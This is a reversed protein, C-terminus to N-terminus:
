PPASARRREGWLSMLNAALIIGGGALVWPDVAEDYALVGVVAILPLRLFDIPAVFSADAHSVAKTLSVQAGIGGLAILTLWGWAAPSPQRFDALAPGAAMLGQLITMYFLVQLTTETRTLRKTALTSLGYGIGCLFAAVIGISLPALGPRLVVLIGIFGVLAALLRGRSWTEGVLLPALVVVWLPYAFELAFVQALPVLGLAFFWCFQGSAHALNRGFHLGLHGTRMAMLGPGALVIYAVVFPLAILNRLLMLQPTSVERLAERGAIALVSIGALVGLMWLAGLVPNHAPVKTPRQAVASQAIVTSPQEPM